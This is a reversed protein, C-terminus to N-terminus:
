ISTESPAPTELLGHYLELWRRQTSTEDRHTRVFDQGAAGMAIRRQPSLALDRLRNAMADLDNEPVLFASVNPALNESIGGTDCAIVPLGAAQAELLAIGQGEQSGNDATISPFLFIDAKALLAKVQSITQSGLFTVLNQIGLNRALQQLPEKEPGDGAILYRSVPSDRVFRAFARLAQAHGKFPVLRGVSLVTVGESGASPSRPATAFEDTHIGLPNLYHRPGHIAKTKFRELMFRSGFTFVDVSALHGPFIHAPQLKSWVHLDFGHVTGVVPGRFFACRKLGGLVEATFLYHGHAADVRGLARFALAWRFFVLSRLRWGLRFPNLTRLLLPAASGAALLHRITFGIRTLWSTPFPPVTVTLDAWEALAAPPPTDAHDVILLPCFGLARLSKLHEIIFTESATPYTPIVVAIRLKPAPASM